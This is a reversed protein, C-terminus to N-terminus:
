PDVGAFAATHFRAQEPGYRHEAGVPCRARARCAVRHCEGGPTARLYTRCRGHDLHGPTVANVPCASLCPKAMCTACPSPARRAAPLALSEAFGLAGRYAHWLGYVPHILINLPSVHVSEARQAWRQFPLWPPGGFPYLATAGHAQALADILRRSWRDLPDAGGDRYEPSAAFTSWHASGVLGLLVLTAMPGGDMLPPVADGVTPHFGGRCVLGLREADGAVTEFRVTTV